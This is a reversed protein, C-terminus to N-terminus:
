KNKIAVSNEEDIIYLPRQKSQTHIHSIYLSLIGLAILVIGVLFILLIGLMATGTFDWSLPDDLILQEIFILLGAILSIPTIILGLGASLYLPKPSMSVISNEALKFLKGSSYQAKGILREPADFYIFEQKFGLWDILGRTIRENETLKLFEKRVSKDILRFDTSGPTLKQNSLSNFLKYFIKSGIRKIVIDSNSSNRIGVVVKAGAQWKAIIDNILSVPHQGDADLTIIADGDAEAIGAALAYEKGFNRSLSILSVNSDQKCIEKIVDASNDSSGDNCFIIHFNFDTIKNIVGSLEAYFSKIGAEENFVPIVICIKKAM